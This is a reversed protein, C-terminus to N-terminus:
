EKNYRDYEVPMILEGDADIFGIKDGIVVNAVNESFTDIYDYELPRTTKVEYLNPMIERKTEYRQNKFRFKDFM